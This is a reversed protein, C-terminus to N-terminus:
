EAAFVVHPRGHAEIMDVRRMGIRQAVRLSSENAEDVVAIIREPSLQALGADLCAGAAETAYGHGWYPRALTYGLEVDGTPEFIGFGVDGILSGSAREVLGWSSFGRTQYAKAYGDLLAEVAQADVLVGGPIFRMVDLDGYVGLMPVSDAMADFSRVVLRETEIPLTVPMAPMVSHRM